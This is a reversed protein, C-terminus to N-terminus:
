LQLILKLRSLLQAMKFSLTPAPDTLIGQYAVEGAYNTFRLYYKQFTHSSIGWKQLFQKSGNNKKVRGISKSMFHYVLSSGVGRFNRVGAQWLKMCIDPDSYMGPSFETSFGGILQWYYRHMISPPYNAGQWDPIGLTAYNKLLQQEQFNAASDGFNHPCAVFKSGEDVREIMTASFYFDNKAYSEIAQWLQADWGPCAYMDDNMYVIYDAKSLAFAANCAYCIGVNQPSYSFDLGQKKVWELTGDSGDNIHLVIQHAYTSNKQISKVCLEVLTLNNWTPILITFRPKTTLQPTPYFTINM